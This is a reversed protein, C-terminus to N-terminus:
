VKDTMQFSCSTDILRKFPKKKPDGKCSKTNCRYTSKVKYISKDTERKRFKLKSTENILNSSIMLMLNVIFIANSLLLVINVM